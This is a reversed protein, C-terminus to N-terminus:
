CGSGRRSMLRTGDSTTAAGTGTLLTEATVTVIVTAPTGGSGPLGGSRLLRDCVDDLADHMRQGHTRGDAMEVRRGADTVATNIRPKALPGLVASLKAGVPGTLWFEGRWAGDGTRRLELHRRDHNLQDRPRSGDPDVRDVVTGAMVRLDQPGFTGAFETLLREGAEVDAPDFGPRDVQQLAGCVIHVQEPTVLGARQAAALVPRVPDLPEGLMSVRAGVAEAARVRRGAEAASIRLAQTLVRAMSTQTLTEPLRRAQGDRIARHDVLSMRNRVREFERLFGVLGLDDVSELGGAEGAEVLADLASGVDALAREVLLWPDDM